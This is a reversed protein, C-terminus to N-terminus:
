FRRMMGLAYEINHANDIQVTATGTWSRDLRYSTQAGFWVAREDMDPADQYNIYPTLAIRPTMVLEVGAGVLFQFANESNGAGKSWAWGLDGRVFPRADTFPLYGVFSAAVDHVSRTAGLM